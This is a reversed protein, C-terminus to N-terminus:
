RHCFLLQKTSDISSLKNDVTQQYVTGIYQIIIVVVCSTGCYRRGCCLITEVAIIVIHWRITYM